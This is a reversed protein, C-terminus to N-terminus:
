PAATSPDRVDQRLVVLLYPRDIEAGLHDFEGLPLARMGPDRELRRVQSRNRALIVQDDAHHGQMMERVDLRCELVDGTEHLRTTRRDKNVVGHRVSRSTHSLADPGGSDKRLVNEVRELFESERHVVAPQVVEHAIPVQGPSIRRPTHCPTGRHPSRALPADRCTLRPASAPRRGLAPGIFIVCAMRDKGNKWPRRLSTTCAATRQVSPTATILRGPGGTTITSEGLAAFIRTCWPAPSGGTRIPRYQAM